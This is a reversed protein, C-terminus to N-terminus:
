HFFSFSILLFTRRKMEKLKLTTNKVVTYILWQLQSGRNKIEMKLKYTLFRKVQTDNIGECLIIRQNNLCSCCLIIM